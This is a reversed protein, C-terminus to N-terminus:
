AFLYILEVPSLYFQLRDATKCAGFVQLCKDFYGLFFVFFICLWDASFDTERAAM